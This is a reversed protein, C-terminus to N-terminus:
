EDAAAVLLDDVLEDGAGVGHYSLVLARDGLVRKRVLDCQQALQKLLLRRVGSRHRAPAAPGPPIPELDVRGDVDLLAPYMALATGYQEIRVSEPLDPFDWRSVNRRSWVAHEPAPPRGRRGLRRKLAALDREVAIVEGDRDLVEIRFRLERPLPVADLADGVDVGRRALADRLAATLTRTGRQPGLEPLLADVTDPLPVLPRRLEKPLGRLMALVKGPLWGPVLWDLEEDRLAGVLPEPVRLTIGDRESAPEFEYRLPLRHGAAELTDPYAGADLEAPDRTAIDLVS